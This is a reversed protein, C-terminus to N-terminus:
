WGYSRDPFAKKLLKTKENLSLKGYKEIDVSNLFDTLYDMAFDIVGEQEIFSEGSEQLIEAGYKQWANKAAQIVNDNFQSM